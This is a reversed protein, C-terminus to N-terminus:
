LSNHWIWRTNINVFDSFHAAYQIMIDDKNELNLHPPLYFDVYFTFYLQEIWFKAATWDMILFGHIYSVNGYKGLNWSSNITTPQSWNNELLYTSHWKYLQYTPQNPVTDGELKESFLHKPVTGFWVSADQWMGINVRLWKCWPRSHSGTAMHKSFRSQLLVTSFYHVAPNSLLLQVSPILAICSHPINDMLLLCFVHEWIM